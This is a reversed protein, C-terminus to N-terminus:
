IEKYFGIEEVASGIMTDYYFGRIRKLYEERKYLIM